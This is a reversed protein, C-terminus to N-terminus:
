PNLIQAGVQSACTVVFSAYSDFKSPLKEVTCETETINKLHERIEDETTSPGLRSIFIRSRKIQPVATLSTGSKRGTVPPKRGRPNVAHPAVNRGRLQSQLNRTVNNQRSEVRPNERVASAHM